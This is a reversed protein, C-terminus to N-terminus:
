VTTNKAFDIFAHFATTSVQFAPGASQKSDRVAVTATLEAVEVCNGSGDNSYSSKRWAREPALAYATLAPVTRHPKM